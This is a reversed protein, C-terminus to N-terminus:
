CWLAVDTKSPSLLIDLRQSLELFWYTIFGEDVRQEYLELRRADVTEYSHLVNGLLAILCSFQGTMSSIM